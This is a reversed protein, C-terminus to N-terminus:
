QPPISGPPVYYLYYSSVREVPKLYAFWPELNAYRHELGYQRVLWMTPSAATWGEAPKIPNIDQTPPFGPWVVLRDPTLNLTNFNVQTANLEKLRRALRITDQGWDLDSDVLIKEPHDGGFENFYTLYNPHKWASSVAMWVIMAAVVWRVWKRSEVVAIAAVISFGVYIPLIHRVGINVKSAMAPLLIGMSFAMPIWYALKARKRWCVATGIGLLLLFGLPTKVGLVVPFFYWWGTTGVQGLLYALHGKSNHTLASNVGDFFEPAPVKAFSFGYVAWIAVAGTVAAIAFPKAREKAAASLGGLGPREVVMYAILAFLAAVPLYGLATFKSVVALATTVGLLLSHKWTPEEAWLLLAFFAAALCGTLPMDTTALGAHALVPPLMTFLGTAVAAAANGFHRHAWLYVAAAALLFFPLIGLRMLNLERSPHGSQYMEAVGEMDQDPGNLPRVGDLYPGLASMVRALPPHQSEYRYVHQALYQMGCAMHGPEDWTLGTESYTAVIRLTALAVLGIVIALSTLHGIDAAPSSPSKVPMQGGADPMRKKDKKRAM